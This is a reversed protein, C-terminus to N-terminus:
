RVFIATQDLSGLTSGTPAHTPALPALTRIITFSSRPSFISITGKESSGSSNTELASDGAFTFSTRVSRSVPVASTM